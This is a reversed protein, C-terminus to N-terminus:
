GVHGPAERHANMGRPGAGTSLTFTKAAPSPGRPLVGELGPRPSSPVPRVPLVVAPADASLSQEMRGTLM